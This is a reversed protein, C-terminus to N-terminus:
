RRDQSSKNAAEVTRAIFDVLEATSYQDFEDDELGDAAELPSERAFGAIDLLFRAHPLSGDKSKSVLSSVIAPVAAWICAECRRRISEVLASDLLAEFFTDPKLGLRRATEVPTEEPAEERGEEDFLAKLIRAATRTTTRDKTSMKVFGRQLPGRM